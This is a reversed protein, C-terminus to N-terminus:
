RNTFSRSNIIFSDWNSWNEGNGVRVGWYYVTGIDRFGSLTYQTVNGVSRGFFVNNQPFNRDTSVLLAYETAGASAQWQFTISNGDVTAGDVPSSLSPSPPGAPTSDGGILECGLGSVLLICLLFVVAIRSVKV